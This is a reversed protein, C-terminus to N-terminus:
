MTDPAPNAEPQQQQQSLDTLPEFNAIVDYDQLVPLDKIMRFDADSGTQLNHYPYDDKSTPLSSMWVTLALLLMAAFAVRPSPTLWALWGRSQPEAAVRARVRVDFAASPEIQPLEELLSSVSRFEEARERCLACTKLHAEVERRERANSRGDLYAMLKTEIRTCNM